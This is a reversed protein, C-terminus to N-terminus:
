APRNEKWFGYGWWVGYLRYALYPVLAWAAVTDLKILLILLMIDFVPALSSLVFSLFLNQARFFVYNWLANLIMMLSVLGFTTQTISRGTDHRLVRYIVYFFVLYYIGGIIYWLWLPASYRPFRLKAFYDKVNTGACLGELGAAAACIILSIVFAGTRTM